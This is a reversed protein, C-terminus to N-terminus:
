LSVGITLTPRRVASTDYVFWFLVTHFDSDPFKSPFSCRVDTFNVRRTWGGKKRGCVLSIHLHVYFKYIFHVDYLIFKLLKSSIKCSSFFPSSSPPDVERVYSPWERGLKRISHIKFNNIMEAYLGGIMGSLPYSYTYLTPRFGCPSPADSSFYSFVISYLVVLSGTRLGVSVIPTEKYLSIVQSEVPSFM